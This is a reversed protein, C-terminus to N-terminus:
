PLRHNPFRIPVKKAESKGCATINSLVTALIIIAAIQKMELEKSTYVGYM